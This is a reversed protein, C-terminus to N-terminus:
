RNTATRPLGTKRDGYSVSLGIVAVRVGDVEFMRWGACAPDGEQTLVNLGVLPINYKKARQNLVEVGWILDHNGPVCANFGMRGIAEFGIECNNLVIVMDGKECWDGADLMLTDVRAARQEDLYAKVYAMGGSRPFVHGHLDNTHLILVSDTAGWVCQTIVVMMGILLKKMGKSKGYMRKFVM